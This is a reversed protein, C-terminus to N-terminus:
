KELVKFLVIKQTCLFFSFFYSQHLSVWNFVIINVPFDTNKLVIYITDPAYTKGIDPYYSIAKSRKTKSLNKINRDSLM